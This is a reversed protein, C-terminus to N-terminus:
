ITNLSVQLRQVTDRVAIYDEQTTHGTLVLQQIFEKLFGGIAEEPNMTESDILAATSALSFNNM